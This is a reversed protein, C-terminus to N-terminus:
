QSVKLADFKEYAYSDLLDNYKYLGVSTSFERSNQMRWAWFDTSIKSLSDLVSLRNIVVAVILIAFVRKKFRLRM